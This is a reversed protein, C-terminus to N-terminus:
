DMAGAIEECTKTIARVEQGLRRFLKGVDQKTTVRATRMSKRTPRAFNPTLDMGSFQVESSGTKQRKSGGQPSNFDIDVGDFGGIAPSDTTSDVKHKTRASNASSM